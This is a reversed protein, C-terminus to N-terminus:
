AICSAKSTVARTKGIDAYLHLAFNDRRRLHNFRMTSLEASLCSDSSGTVFGELEYLDGGGSSAHVRLPKRASTDVTCAAIIDNEQVQFQQAENLQLVDCGFGNVEADTRTVRQHSGEVLSYDGGNERFVMFFVM